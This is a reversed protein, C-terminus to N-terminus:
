QYKILYKGLQKTTLKLSMSNTKLGSNSTSVGLVLGQSPVSGSIGNAGPNANFSGSSCTLCNGIVAAGAFSGGKCLGYNTSGNTLGLAKGTGIVAVSISLVSNYKM